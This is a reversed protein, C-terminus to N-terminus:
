KDLQSIQNEWSSVAEEKLQYRNERENIRPPLTSSKENRKAVELGEEKKRIIFGLKSDSTM